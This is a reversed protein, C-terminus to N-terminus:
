VLNDKAVVADFEKAAAVWAGPGWPLSGVLLILLLLLLLLLLLPPPPPLLPLLLPLLLPVGLSRLTERQPM